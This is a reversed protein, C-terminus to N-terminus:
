DEVAFRKLYALFALAESTARQLKLSDGESLAQILSRINCTGAPAINRAALHKATAEMARRLHGRNEGGGEADCFAAASLLGNNLILSPLKSIASRNLDQAAQLAHLAAAARLQDLNQM